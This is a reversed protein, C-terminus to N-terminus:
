EKDLDILKSLKNNVSRPKTFTVNETDYRIPTDCEVNIPKVADLVRQEQAILEEVWKPRLNNIRRSKVINIIAKESYKKLLLNVARVQGLYLTKWQPLKWFQIPLEKKDKVALQECALEIIYQSATVFQSPSYRSPYRSKDTQEKSM